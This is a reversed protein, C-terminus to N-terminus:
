CALKHIHLITMIENNGRKEWFLLPKTVQILPITSHLDRHTQKLDKLRYIIYAYTRM